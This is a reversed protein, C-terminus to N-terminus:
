AGRVLHISFSGVATEDLTFAIIFGNVPSALIPVSYIGGSVAVPDPFFGYRTEAYLEYSNILLDDDLFGLDAYIKLTGAAASKISFSLKRWGSRIMPVYVFRTGLRATDFFDGSSVIPAMTYQDFSNESVYIDDYGDSFSPVLENVRGDGATKLGGKVTTRLVSLETDLLEIGSNEIAESYYAGGMPFVTQGNNFTKIYSGDMIVSVPVPADSTGIPNGSATTMVFQQYHTTTLGGTIEITGITTTTNSPINIAM